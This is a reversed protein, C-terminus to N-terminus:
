MYPALFRHCRALLASITRFIPARYRHILAAVVLGGALEPLFVNLIFRHKVFVPLFDHLLLLVTVYLLKQGGSFAREAGFCVGCAVGFLLHEVRYMRYIRFLPDLFLRDWFPLDLSWGSHSCVWLLHLIAYLTFTTAFPHRGYYGALRRLWVKSHNRM